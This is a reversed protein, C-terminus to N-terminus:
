KVVEDKEKKESLNKDCLQWIKKLIDYEPIDPTEALDAMGQLSVKRIKDVLERGAGNIPEKEADDLLMEERHEEKPEDNPEVDPESEPMEEAEDGPIMDDGEFRIAENMTKPMISTIRRIEELNKKLSDRKM